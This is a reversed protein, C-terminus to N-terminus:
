NILMIFLQHAIAGGKKQWLSFIKKQLGGGYPELFKNKVDMLACIHLSIKFKWQCLDFPQGFPLCKCPYGNKNLNPHMFILNEACM